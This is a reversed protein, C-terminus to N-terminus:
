PLAVLGALVQAVVTRPTASEALAPVDLHVDFRRRVTTAMRIFQLSQGGLAFFNDNPGVTGIGLLSVWVEVVVRLVIEPDPAGDGATSDTAGPAGLPDAAPPGAAVEIPDIWHRDRSFSYTPVVSPSAACTDSLSSFDVKVGAAWLEGFGELLADATTDHGTRAFTVLAASETATREVLYSMTGSPGIDAFVPDQMALISTLATRCRVPERLQRAWYDAARVEGRAITSGDLTSVLETDRRGTGIGAFEAEIQAAAPAMMSTHFAKSAPLSRHGIGADDLRTLLRQVQDSPGGVVIMGPANDCALECDDLGSLYDGLAAADIQVSVMAGDPAAQMLGGRVAAIRLAQQLDLEGSVCAASLEGISHGLMLDPTVGWARLVRTTAVQHLLLAPQTVDTRHVVDAPDDGVIVDRVDLGILPQLIGAGEDICDRFVAHAQYAAASMAPSEAGQGPFLFVLKPRRLAKTPMASRLLAPATALDDVSVALRHAFTRRRHQLTHAVAHRDLTSQSELHLALAEAVRAAAGATPGSVTLLAASGGRAATALNGELPSPGSDNESDGEELILHVNTGGLGFSSVAARRPRDPSTEWVTAVRNVVFASEEGTLEARPERLGALPPKVGHRVALAAKILGTVGAAADLHGVNAKLSGISCSGGQKGYVESLAALEIADGVMTGTGHAELYGITKPSIGAAAYARQLVDIQGAVGPATYGVRAAGDNNVASGRVVAVVDDGDRRADELRKLVVLASANGPVTGSAKGDFPRCVGEPSLIGQPEFLYGSTNPLSVCVGGALALDSDRSRLSQCALHVAVLSTSCATQVTLAPGRLGLRYAIKAALHDKENALIVSLLGHDAVLDSNPLVHQVFYYNFGSGVFVGTREVENDTLAGVSELATWATELLIRHQPDTMAATAPTIGFFEADFQDAADLAGRAPVYDAQDFQGPDVGAAMLEDRTFRSTTVQGDVLNKWLKEVSSAGPFRGAMGVVAIDSM